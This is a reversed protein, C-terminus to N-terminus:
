LFNLNPMRNIFELDEFENSSIDVETVFTFELLREHLKKLEKQEKLELRSLAWRNEDKFHRLASLHVSV